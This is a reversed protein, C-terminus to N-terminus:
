VTIVIKGQAHGEGLYSLAAPVEALPYIREVVPTVKGSEMLEAMVALDDRSNKALMTVLTQHGFRAAVAVKAFDTLPGLWKSRKPGGVLVLTGQPTMARRRDSLSRNGAIDFILDYKVGSHVFDTRTYDIVDDAGLARVADVHRTSCVATVVAGFSKAIQVAFTGVGGSAGNILVQQGTQIRGKDRLGQLATLAAVPVAAAQEFTLRAHKAVVRDARVAVYEAYAGSRMGFIADGVKFQHVNRGAAEVVGAMDTGPINQKPRRLGYSMRAIYPTGTVFYWDQPNVSSARVRVLLGDDNITPQDVDALALVSPPGYQHLVMAKMPREM